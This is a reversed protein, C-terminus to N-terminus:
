PRRGGHAFALDGPKREHFEVKQKPAAYQMYIDRTAKNSMMTEADSESDFLLFAQHSPKTGMNMSNKPAEMEHARILPNADKLKGICEEVQEDIQDYFRLSFRYTM